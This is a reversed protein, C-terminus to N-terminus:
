SANRQREEAELAELMTRNWRYINKMVDPTGLRLYYRQMFQQMPMQQIYFARVAQREYVPISQIAKEFQKRNAAIGENNNRYRLEWFTTDARDGSKSPILGRRELFDTAQAKEYVLSGTQVRNKGGLYYSNVFDRQKQELLDEVLKPNNRFQRAIGIRSRPEEDVRPMQGLRLLYRAQAVLRKVVAVPIKTEESIEALKLNRIFRRRAVLRLRPDPLAEIATTLADTANRSQEPPSVRGEAIPRARDIASEVSGDDDGQVVSFPIARRRQNQKDLRSAAASAVKSASWTGLSGKEPDYHRTKDNLINSMEEFMESLVEEQQLSTRLSRRAKGTIVAGSRAVAKATRDFVPYLLEALRAPVPEGVRHNNMLQQVEREEATIEGREPGELDSPVLAHLPCGDKRANLTACFTLM